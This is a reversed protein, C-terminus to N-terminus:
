HYCSSFIAVRLSGGLVGDKSIAFLRGSSRSRAFGVAFVGVVSERATTAWSAVVTSSKAFCSVCGGWGVLMEETAAACGAGCVGLRRRVSSLSLGELRGGGLGESM